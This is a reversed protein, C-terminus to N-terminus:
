ANHQEKLIANTYTRLIKIAGDYQAREFPFTPFDSYDWYEGCDSSRFPNQFQSWVVQANGIQIDCNLPWCGSIGCDCGLVIRQSGARRPEHQTGCGVLSELLEGDPLGAYAGAIANPEGDSGKFRVEYDRVIDILNRGDIYIDITKLVERENPPLSDDVVIDNRRFAITNM